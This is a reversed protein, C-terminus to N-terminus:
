EGEGKVYLTVIDALRETAEAQTLECCQSNSYDWSGCREGVCDGLIMLGDKDLASFYKCVIKM